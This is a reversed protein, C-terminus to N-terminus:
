GEKEEGRRIMGHRTTRAKGQRANGEMQDLAAVVALGAEEGVLVVAEVEVPQGLMGALGAAADMSKCQHGIM